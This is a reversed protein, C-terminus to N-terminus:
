TSQICSHTSNTATSMISHHTDMSEPETITDSSCIIPNTTSMVKCETSQISTTIQRNSAEYKEYKEYKKSKKKNNKHSKNNLCNVLTTATM